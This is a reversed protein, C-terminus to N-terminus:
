ARDLSVDAAAPGAALLLGYDFGRAKLGTLLETVARRGFEGEGPRLAILVKRRQGGGVMRTGGYYAVGDGRKIPEADSFGMRELLLRGFSEFAPPALHALRRRLAVRSAGSLRATAVALTREQDNLEGELKLDALVYHGGGTSRVRPRLGAAERARQDALLALSVSRWLEPPNGRLLRRKIALDVIQRIHWPRGDGSRLVEIVSEVVGGRAAPREGRPPETRAEAGPRGQVANRQGPGAGPHTAAHDPRQRDRGRQHQPGGPHRGRADFSPRQVDGRGESRAPEIGPSSATALPEERRTTEEEAEEEEAEEEEEEEAASEDARSLFADEEATAGEAALADESTMEAAPELADVAIEEHEGPGEAPAEQEDQEDEGLAPAAESEIPSAEEAEASLATEEAEDSEEPAHVAGRRAIAAADPTASEEEGGRRRGRAGRRRRRGDSAAASSAAGHEASRGAGRAPSAEEGAAAHRERSGKSEPAAKTGRPEAKTGRPEAKAGRPEPPPYYRLGFVGPKERTLLLGPDHKKLADNLRQQMTIEPTRGIVTLLNREIALQTLKKFHLPQRERKLIEIAAELFTM